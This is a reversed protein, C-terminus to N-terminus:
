NTSAMTSTHNWYRRLSQRCVPDNHVDFLGAYNCRAKALRPTHNNNDTPGTRPRDETPPNATVLHYGLSGPLLDDRAVRNSSGRLMRSSQNILTNTTMTASSFQSPSWLDLLFTSNSSAHCVVLGFSNSWPAAHKM